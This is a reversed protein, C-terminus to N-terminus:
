TANPSLYACPHHRTPFSAQVKRNDRYIDFDRFKEDDDTTQRDIPRDAGVQGQCSRGVSALELLQFGSRTMVDDATIYMEGFPELNPNASIVSIISFDLRGGM